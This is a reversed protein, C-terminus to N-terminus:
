TCREGLMRQNLISYVLSATFEQDEQKHGSTGPTAHLCAASPISITDETSRLGASYDAVGGQWSWHTTVIHVM